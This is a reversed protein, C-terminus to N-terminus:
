AGTITDLPAPSKTALADCETQTRAGLGGVSVAPAGWGTM